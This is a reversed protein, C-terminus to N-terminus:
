KDWFSDSDLVEMVILRINEFADNLIYSIKDKSIWKANEIGEETQPKLKGKYNTNMKFWYTKKLRYRKGKKFLHFTESLKKEVILDSVGTEETVERQAAEIIMEKKEVGGKPLDWKNNRFIFLTKRDYREVLGGAAEVIPFKKIFGKWLKNIDRHYLFVKTNKNNKLAKIIQNANSYKIYLLPENDSIEHIQNSLILPKQNFFVKYM